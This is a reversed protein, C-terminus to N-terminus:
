RSGAVVLPVILSIATRQQRWALCVFLPDSHSPQLFIRLFLADLEQFSFTVKINGSSFSSTQSALAQIKKVFNKVDIM